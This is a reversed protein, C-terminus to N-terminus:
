PRGFRAISEGVDRGLRLVARSPLANPGTTRASHNLISIDVTTMAHVSAHDRTNAVLQSIGDLGATTSVLSSDSDGIQQTLGGPGQVLRIPVEGGSSIRYGGDVPILTGTVDDLVFSMGSDGPTLTADGKPDIRGNGMNAFGNGNIAFAFRSRPAGNATTGPRPQFWTSATFSEEFSVDITVAFAIQWGELAFFGGRYEALEATTLTPVAGLEMLPPTADAEAGGWPVVAAVAFAPGALGRIIRERGSQTWGSALM